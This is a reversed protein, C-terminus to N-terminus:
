DGGGGNESHGIRFDVGTHDRQSLIHV